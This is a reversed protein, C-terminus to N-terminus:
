ISMWERKSYSFRMMEHIKTISYSHFPSFFQVHACFPFNWKFFWLYCLFFNETRVGRLFVYGVTFSESDDTEQPAFYNTVKKLQPNQWLHLVIACCCVEKGRCCVPRINWKSPAFRSLLSFTHQRCESLSHLKRTHVNKVVFPLLYKQKVDWMM